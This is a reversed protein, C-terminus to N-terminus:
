FQISIYFFSMFNHRLKLFCVLAASNYPKLRHVCWISVLSTWRKWLTWILCGVLLLYNGCFLAHAFGEPHYAHSRFKIVSKLTGFFLTFFLAQLSVFLFPEKVELFLVTCGTKHQAKVSHMSVPITLELLLSSFIPIQGQVFFVWFLVTEWHLSGQM